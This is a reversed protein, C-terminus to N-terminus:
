SKCTLNNMEVDAIKTDDKQLYSFTVTHNNASLYQKSLFVQECLKGLLESGSLGNTLQALRSSPIDQTYRHIYESHYPTVNASVAQLVEESESNNINSLQSTIDSFFQTASDIDKYKFDSGIIDKDLLDQDIQSVAIDQNTDLEAQNTVLDRKIQSVILSKTLNTDTTAKSPTVSSKSKTITITNKIVVSDVPATTSDTIAFASISTSAMMSLIIAVGLKKM